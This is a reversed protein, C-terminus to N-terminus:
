LATRPRVSLRERVQEYIPIRYTMNGTVEMTVALGFRIHRLIDGADKRCNIKVIMQSGDQVGTSRGEFIEHQLTGRQVANHDANSRRNIKINEQPKDFRPKNFWLHAVRYKQSRSNIPSIWSLTIIIRIEPHTDAFVPPLPLVFEAAEGDLLLGFGIVTVRQDDGMRVRKFNPQGYGLFRVVYKRFTRPNDGSSLSDALPSHMEGWEAGHVLLTKMLVADFEEPIEAEPRIRLSELLEYFFYAERTGLAAANSTGRTYTTANLTGVSGPTAVCQGVQGSDDLRVLITGEPSIPAESLLQRGGPLYIDPKIARRYGPGHASMVSPIQAGLPDVLHNPLPGFDDMHIAGVTVGNLTEAPSLLRRNRTDEAIASIVLRQREKKRLEHFRRTQTRLSIPQVHNGASVVFLINYKYSLWDLLRAWGSMERLFPRAPDGISLNVVRIRPSAPPESSEGDFMRVIARHILDVPLIEDPIVEIFRDDFSRRPQMIPRVYIPRRLSQENVQSNLDGHCILSAMATGHSRERAQYLDEYGDPDDVILRGDLLKHRTLPMGDLLALVPDGAIQHELDPREVPVVKETENEIPVSCQGVPRFFMIDDCQLLALDQRTEPRNLLEHIHSIKVQGLIAHYAIDQIVCETVIQGDLEKVLSRVRDTADQRRDFSERYWLEVEFPVTSQGFMERDRWDNLVGTGDLRDNVDWPRIQRLYKFVEKFPALGTSFSEESNRQWARFLNQIETLARKDSMMLFLRGNLSREPHSADEFGDGPEIENVEYEALWELGRVKKVAQFFNAITGITELILVMEPDIGLSSDQLAIRRNELAEQLRRFQPSLRKRQREDEPRSIGGGSGSRRERDARAPKPFVLIPYDGSAM